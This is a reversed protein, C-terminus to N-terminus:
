PNITNKYKIKQSNSYQQKIANHYKDDISSNIIMSNNNTSPYNDKVSKGLVLENFRERYEQFKRSNHDEYFQPKKAPRTM